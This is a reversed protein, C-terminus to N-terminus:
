FGIDPILQNRPYWITVHQSRHNYCNGTITYTDGGCHYTDLKVMDRKVEMVVGQRARSGPRVTKQFEAIIKKGERVDAAKKANQVAVAAEHEKSAKNKEAMLVNFKAVDSELRKYEQTVQEYDGGRVFLAMFATSPAVADDAYIKLIDTTDDGARFFSVEASKIFNWGYFSFGDTGSKLRWYSYNAVAGFQPTLAPWDPLAERRYEKFLSIDSSCEKPRSISKFEEVTPLRWDTQGMMKSKKAEVMAAHWTMHKMTGTCASGNWTQGVPCRYWILGTKPDQLGGGAVEPLEKPYKDKCVAEIDALDPVGNAAKGTAPKKTPANKAAEIKANSEAIVEALTKAQANLSVVFLAILAFLKTKM